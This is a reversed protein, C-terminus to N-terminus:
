KKTVGHFFFILFFDLFFDSFFTFDSDLFVNLVKEIEDKLKNENLMKGQLNEQLAHVDM